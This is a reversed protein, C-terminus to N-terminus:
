RKLEITVCKGAEAGQPLPIKLTTENTFLNYETLLSIIMGTKGETVLTSDKLGPISIEYTNLKTFRDLWSLVQEKPTNEFNRIMDDLEKRHTEGLGTKLPTYFFHGHAIKSFSDLPEDVELFLSFVSDTGRSKLIKTKAEEFKIKNKTQICEPKILKYLTKLDAAWILNDYMYSNNNQDILICKDALVEIIKTETKIIGGFELIKEKLADALKGVGGKPYFYDLYLSFYSLAFFAPTNKFFHQAIMDRLSPNKVITKLYDEVPMKM